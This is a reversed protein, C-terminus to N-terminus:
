PARGPGSPLVVVMGFGVFGLRVDPGREPVGTLVLGACASMQGVSHPLVRKM